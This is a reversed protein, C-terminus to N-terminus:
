ERITRGDISEGKSSIKRNLVKGAAVRAAVPFVEEAAAGAVAEEGEEGAVAM